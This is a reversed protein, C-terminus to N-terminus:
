LEASATWGGSLRYSSGATAGTVGLDASFGMTDVDAASASSAYTWSGSQSYAWRGNVPSGVQGALLAVTPTARMATQFSVRQSALLTATVAAGTMGTGPQGNAPVTDIGHSKAFYRQCLAIEGQVHRPSWPTALTGTELKINRFVVTGAVSALTLALDGTAGPPIVLQASRRGAGAM